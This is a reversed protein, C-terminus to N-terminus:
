PVPFKSTLITVSKRIAQLQKNKQLEGRVKKLFTVREEKNNPMRYHSVERIVDVIWKGIQKMEKEKMGRTTI